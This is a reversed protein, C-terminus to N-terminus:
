SHANTKLLYLADSHINLIMDSAHFCVMANLNIALYHPLQKTKLMTNETGKSQKSAITSLTILVTLDVARTNYLISRIVRQVHKIDDKSLHPSTDPPLPHQAKGGYQRPQLKYPCYQPEPPCPTGTNRSNSSSTGLCLSTSCKSKTIGSSYFGATSIM